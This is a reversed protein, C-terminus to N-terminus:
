ASFHIKEWDGYSGIVALPTTIGQCDTGGEAAEQRGDWSTFDVLKYMLLREKAGVKDALHREILTVSAGEDLFALTHVSKQGCHQVVSRYFVSSFTTPHLLPDHRQLCEGVSCRLKFKCEANGHDNLCVRYLRKQEVLKIRESPPLKRFDECHRLCHREKKLKRCHQPKFEM